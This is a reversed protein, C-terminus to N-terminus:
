QVPWAGEDGMPGIHWDSLVQARSAPVQTAHPTALETAVLMNYSGVLRLHIIISGRSCHM